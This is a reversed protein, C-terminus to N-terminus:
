KACRIIDEIIYKQRIEREIKEKLKENEKNADLKTNKQWIGLAHRARM